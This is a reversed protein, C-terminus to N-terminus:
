REREVTQGVRTPPTDGDDTTITQTHGHRGFASWLNFAIIAVGFAAWLWVFGGADSGAMQVLGVIVIVAGFVAGFVAMQKSPRVRYTPM